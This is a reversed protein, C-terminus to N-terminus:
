AAPTGVVAPLSEGTTRRARYGFRRGKLSNIPREFFHWSAAAVAITLVTIVAFSAFGRQTYRIGAHPSALAVAKIVLPHFVYMGYSIRGVYTLPRLRLLRGFTGGFGDAAGVVLCGFVVAISTPEVIGLHAVDAGHHELQLLGVYAVLGLPLAVALLRAPLRHRVVALLAGIGLSDLVWPTLLARTEQGPYHLTAFLRYSPAAVIIAVLLPVIFRRPLFLLLWPWVLYFQEEVALTWFHGVLGAGSWGHSAWVINSTYTFLWAAFHRVGQADAIVLVVLVGYYLPFIRLFRRAYFRRLFFLRTGDGDDFGRRCDLLIGTILFGSLVFFLQVGLGGWDVRGLWPLPAPQWAHWVLVGLIAFARLGDLQPM